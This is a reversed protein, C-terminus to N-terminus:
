RDQRTSVLLLTCELGAERHFVANAYRPDRLMRLFASRSPYHALVLADWPRAEGVLPECDLGGFVLGGGAKAIMRVAQRGYREYAVAGSVVDGEPAGYYAARERFALLNIMVVPTIRESKEFTELQAISPHIGGTATAPVPPGGPGRMALAGAFAALNALRTRLRPWPACCLSDLRLVAADRERSAEQYAPSALLDVFAARSPFEALWVANWVSAHTGVLVQDARAQLVVRAGAEALVPRQAERWARYRSPDRHQVLELVALRGRGGARLEALRAESPNLNLQM